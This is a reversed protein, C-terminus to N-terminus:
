QPKADLTEHDKLPMQDLGQKLLVHDNLPKAIFMVKLDDICFEWDLAQVGFDAHIEVGYLESWTEGSFEAMKVAFPLHYGAPFYLQWQYPDSENRAHSYGRVFIWTGPPPADMPKISFSHLTFYPQLGSHQM